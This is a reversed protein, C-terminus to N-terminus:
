IFRVHRRACDSVHRTTTHRHATVAVRRATHVRTPPPPSSESKAITMPPRRANSQATCVRQPGVIPWHWKITTACLMAYLKCATCSGPHPESRQLCLHLPHKKGAAHSRLTFDDLHVTSPKHAVRVRLRVGFRVPSPLGTPVGRGVSARELYQFHGDCIRANAVVTLATQLHRTQALRNLSHAACVSNSM